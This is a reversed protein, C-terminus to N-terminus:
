YRHEYVAMIAQLESLLSARQGADLVAYEPRTEGRQLAQICARVLTCGLECISETTREVQPALQRV